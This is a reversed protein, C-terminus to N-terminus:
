PRLTVPQGPLLDAEVHAETAAIEVLRSSGPLAVHVYDAEIYGNYAPPPTEGLGPVLSALAAVLSGAWDGMM